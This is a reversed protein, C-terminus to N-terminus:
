YVSLGHRNLVETIPQFFTTGGSSCNGSGGSTIGLATNGAFLSGGSDGPEACVNTQIMGFVTGQPYNVTANLGTVSGGHLGTTSGSRLVSQGIFPNGANTIDRFSGNWLYVNGPRSISSDYRVVGYDDTPFRSVVRPGILATHSSNAYWTSAINTCHGATVLYQRGSGSRVNFGLSCRSSGGFIAQGGSIALDFTGPTREIRVASGFPRSVSRLQAVEPGSVTEDVSVVVQNTVPDVSWATGTITPAAALRATARELDATSHTVIKAVGGAARVAQAAASDTVNVVMRGTSQDLYTGATRDSGLSEALSTAEDAVAIQQDASLAPAGTAAQGTSPVLLLTAALLSTAVTAVAARMSSFRTPRM